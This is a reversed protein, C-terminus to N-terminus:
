KDLNLLVICTCVIMYILGPAAIRITVKKGDPFIIAFLWIFFPTLMPAAYFLIKGLNTLGKSHATLLFADGIIWLAVSVVIGMFQWAYSQRYARTIVILGLLLNAIATLILALIEPYFLEPM